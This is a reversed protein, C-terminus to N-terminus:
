QGHSIKMEFLLSPKVPLKFSISKKHSKIAIMLLSHILTFNVEMTEVVSHHAQLDFTGLIPPVVAQADALSPQATALPIGGDNLEIGALDRNEPQNSCM